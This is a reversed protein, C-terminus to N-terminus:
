AAAATDPRSGQAGGGRCGSLTSMYVHVHFQASCSRVSCCMVTVKHDSYVVRSLCAWDHDNQMARGFETRLAADLEVMFQTGPTINSSSFPEAGGQSAAESDHYHALVRRQGQLLMKSVSPLGDIAIVLVSPKHAFILQGCMIRLEHAVQVPDTIGKERTIQHLLGNSDIFLVDLTPAPSPVSDGLLLAFVQSLLTLLRSYLGPQGM